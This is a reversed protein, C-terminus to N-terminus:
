SLRQLGHGCLLLLGLLDLLTPKFSARFTWLFTCLEPKKKGKGGYSFKALITSPTGVARNVLGIRDSLRKGNCTELVPTGSGCNISIPAWTRFTIRIAQTSSAYFRPSWRIGYTRAQQPNAKLSATRSGSDKKTPSRTFFLNAVLNCTQTSDYRPLPTFPFM